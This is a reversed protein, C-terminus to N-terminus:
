CQRVKERRWSNCLVIATIPNLHLFWPKVWTRIYRAVNRTSHSSSTASGNPCSGLSVLLFALFNQYSLSSSLFPKRQSLVDGNYFVKMIVYYLSRFLSPCEGKSVRPKEGRWFPKGRIERAKKVKWIISEIERSMLTKFSENKQPRLSKWMFTNNPADNM